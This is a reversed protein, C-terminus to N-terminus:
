FDEVVRSLRLCRFMAVAGPHRRAIARAEDATEAVDLTVCGAFTPRVIAWAPVIFHEIREYAAAPQLVLLLAKIEPLTIEPRSPPRAAGPRTRIM